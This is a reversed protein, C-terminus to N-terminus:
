INVRRVVDVNDLRVIELYEKTWDYPELNDFADGIDVKVPDIEYQRNRVEKCFDQFQQENKITRKM